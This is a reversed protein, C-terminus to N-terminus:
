ARINRQGFNPRGVLGATQSTAAVGQQTIVVFHSKSNPVSPWESSAPNSFEFATTYVTPFQSPLFGPQDLPTVTM